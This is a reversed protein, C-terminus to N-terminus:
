RPDEWSCCGVEMQGLVTLIPKSQSSPPPIKLLGVEGTKNAFESPGEFFGPTEGM